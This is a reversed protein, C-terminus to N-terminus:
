LEGFGGFDFEKYSFNKSYRRTMELDNAKLGRGSLSHNKFKLSDILHFEIGIIKSLTEMLLIFVGM